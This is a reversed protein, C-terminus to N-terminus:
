SSVAQEDIAEALEKFSRLREDNCTPVLGCIPDGERILRLAAAVVAIASARWEGDTGIVDALNETAEFFRRTLYRSDPNTSRDQKVVKIADSIAVYMRLDCYTDVNDSM